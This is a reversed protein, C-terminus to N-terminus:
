RGTSREVGVTYLHVGEDPINQIGGRMFQMLTEIKWTKVADCDVEGNKQGHLRATSYVAESTEFAFVAKM